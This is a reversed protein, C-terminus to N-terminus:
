KATYTRGKKVVLKQKELDGLVRYLYNPKIKMAKAIESATIGPEAKILAVAQAARGGGRKRGTGRPRGSSRRRTRNSGGSLEVLARELRGKEKDLESLHSQVLDRAQDLASKM